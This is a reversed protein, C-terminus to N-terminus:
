HVLGDVVHSVDGHEEVLEVVGGNPGVEHVDGVVVHDDAGGQHVVALDVLEQVLEGAADGGNSRLDERAQGAAGDVLDGVLQLGDLLCLGAVVGGRVGSLDERKDEVVVNSSSGISGILSASYSGGAPLRRGSQSGPRTGKM